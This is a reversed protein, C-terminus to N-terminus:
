LVLLDLRNRTNEAHLTPHRLQILADLELSLKILEITPMTIPRPRQNIVEVVPVFGGHSSDVRGDVLDLEAVYIYEM